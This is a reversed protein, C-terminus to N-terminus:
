YSTKKSVDAKECSYYEFMGLKDLTLQREKWTKARLKDNLILCTAM